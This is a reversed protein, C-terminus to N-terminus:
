RKGERLKGTGNCFRCDKEWGPSFHEIGGDGDKCPVKGTGGCNPCDNTSDTERHTEDINMEYIEYWSHEYGEATCFFLHEDENYEPRRKHDTEIYVEALVKTSFVGCVTWASSDFTYTVVFVQRPRGEFIVNDFDTLELM